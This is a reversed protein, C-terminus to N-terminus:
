FLKKKDSKSEITCGPFADKVNQVAQKPTPKKESSADNDEAALGLIAQLAYRRLYSFAAGAGQATNCAQLKVTDCSTVTDLCQGSNAHFLLTKVAPRGTVDNCLLQSIGLGNDRLVPTVSAILEALELSSDESRRILSFISESKKDTFVHSFSNSTLLTPFSATIIFPAFYAHFELILPLSM